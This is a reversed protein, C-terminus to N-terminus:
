GRLEQQISSIVEDLSRWAGSEMERQAQEARAGLVQRWQADRAAKDLLDHIAQLVRQDNQHEVLKIICARLETNSMIM